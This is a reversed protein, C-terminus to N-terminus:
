GLNNTAFTDCKAPDGTRYGTTFWKQRQESSGHTWSEPSVRGTAQEQIRDDGVASAASLADAIDKDTLPKLFTVDTGEQKTISAYHAWVGAYCDAQLETRVGGGTPGTPDQQARGLVGQLNQIHHGFEHAVVYEEALPGGSSGFETVLTDFFDTDFYATKDGPCYFPGVASSAYGCGGTNTGGTFLRVHPRTYGQMLEAWVGDLSNGTAVVRCQVISNADAGTQCQSLDFGPADVGQTDMQQEPVVTSPDVGLFLAVVVILLGGLGGGVAIGRGPGRGGGSSTTSTDIRMGENFTM